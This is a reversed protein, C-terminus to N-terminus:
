SIGLMQSQNTQKHILNTNERLYMYIVILKERRFILM